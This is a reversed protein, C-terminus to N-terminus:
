KQGKRELIASFRFEKNYFHRYVQAYSYDLARAWANTSDYQSSSWLCAVNGRYYALGDTHRFGAFVGPLGILIEHPIKYLRTKPLLYLGNAREGMWDDWNRLDPSHFYKKNVFNFENLKM